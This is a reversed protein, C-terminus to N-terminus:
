VAGSGGSDPGAGLRDATAEYQGVGDTWAALQEFQRALCTFQKRSEDDTAAAAAEYLERSKERYHIAHPTPM